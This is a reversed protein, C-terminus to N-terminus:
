TLCLVFCHIYFLCRVELLRDQLELEVAKWLRKACRLFIANQLKQDNTLPRPKDGKNKPVAPFTYKLSPLIFVEHGSESDTEKDMFERVAGSFGAYDADTLKVMNFTHLETTWKVWVSKM